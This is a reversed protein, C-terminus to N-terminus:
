ERSYKFSVQEDILKMAEQKEEEYYAELAKERLIEYTKREQMAKSLRDRKRVGQDELEYLRAAAEKEKAKLYAIKNQVATLDRVRFAVSQKEFFVQNEERILGGIRNLEQQQRDRQQVAVGYEMQYQTELKEKIHLLSQLPFQFKAM